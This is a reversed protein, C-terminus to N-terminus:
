MVTSLYLARLEAVNLDTTVHTRANTGGFVTMGATAQGRLEVLVPRQVLTYLSPDLTWAVAFFDYMVPGPKWNQAAHWAPVVRGVAATAAHRSQAFAQCEDMTLTFRRTVDWTGMYVPIGSSLVIDAAVADFAVNHEARNLNPEGGMMAIAKVQSALGPARQLAVAINTLPGLCALVIEGPHQRVTRIILGPADDDAVADAPDAPEAFAAHNMSHAPDLLWEWESAPLPRLPLPMGSAVPVDRGLHRLLRRVLRARQDAPYTVTTVAKVDLDPRLLAFLLVLLDDIDQGPDTDIIIKSMGILIACLTRGTSHEAGPHSPIRM